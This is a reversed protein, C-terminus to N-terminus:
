RDPFGTPANKEDGFHGAYPSIMPDAFARAIPPATWAALGFVVFSLFFRSRMAKLDDEPGFTEGAQHEGIPPGRGSGFRRRTDYRCAGPLSGSPITMIRGALTVRLRKEAGVKLEFGGSDELAEHAAPPDLCGELFYVFM